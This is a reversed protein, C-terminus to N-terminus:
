TSGPWYRKWADADLAHPDHGDARPPTRPPACRAPRLPPRRRAARGGPRHRRAEGGRRGRLAAGGRRVRRAAARRAARRPGHPQDAERGAGGRAPRAAGRRRQLRAAEPHAQARGLQSGAARRPGDERLRRVRASAARRAQHRSRAAVDDIGFADPGDETAIRAHFLVQLLVDGLEERVDARNGDEIAQYLEYCEEVLYQLLSEPTQAADWPCGGPSRLRDMVAVADLLAAGAPGAATDCTLVVDSPGAPSGPDLPEAGTAARVDAPVTDDAFVRGARRLAPLSAAPVVCAGGALVIIIPVILGPPHRARLHQRAQDARLRGPGLGRVPPERRGPHQGPRGAREAPRHARAAAPQAPRMAAQDPQGDTRRTVIRAVSWTANAPNPQYAVVAGQPVGFVVTGARDPDTAANYTVGRRAGPGALVGDAAAGGSALLRASKEATARDRVAVEDVVISIRGVVGRGLGTAAQQEAASRRTLALIGNVVSPDNVEAGQSALQQLVGRANMTATRDVDAPAVVVGAAAARVGVIANGITAGVVSRALGAADGGIARVAALQDNDSLAADIEQEIQDLSIVRDGIVAATAPQAPGGCGSVVAGVVAVAAVVRGVQTRM